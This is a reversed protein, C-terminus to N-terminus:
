SAGGAMADLEPEGPRVGLKVVVGRERIDSWVRMMRHHRVDAHGPVLVVWEGPRIDAVLAAATPYPRDDLVLTDERTLVVLRAQDAIIQAIGGGGVEAPAVEVSGIPVSDALLALVGLLMIFLVDVFSKILGKM